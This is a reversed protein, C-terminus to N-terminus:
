SGPRSRARGAPRFRHRARRTVALALQVPGLLPRGLASDRHVIRGGVRIIPAIPRQESRTPRATTTWGWPLSCRSARRVLSPCRGAAVAGTRAPRTGRSVRSAASPRVASSNWAISGSPSNRAVSGDSQGTLVPTLGSSRRSPVGRDSSLRAPLQRAIVWSDVSSLGDSSGMAAEPAPGVAIARTMPRAARVACADSDSRTRSMWRYQVTQQRFARSSGPRQSSQVWSTQQRSRPLARAPWSSRFRTRASSVGSRRSSTRAM